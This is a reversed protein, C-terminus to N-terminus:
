LRTYIDPRRDNFVHNIPNIFKNRALSIDLETKVVEDHDQSGIALVEGSPNTVFAQGSFWLGRETGTRNATAIFVRNQVSLGPVSRHANLTILNSPHCIIDAGMMAEARWIEPFLYDFCILMGVKCDGIDVVPLDGEGPQFIKKENMFLHIKHYKAKIGEPGVLISTNYLKEGARENIGSVIHAGKERAKQVLFDVFRSNELDESCVYAEKYGSFNYGSSALEPLVILQAKGTHKFLGELKAINEDPSGLVPRFQIIAIEM